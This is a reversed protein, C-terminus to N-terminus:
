VLIHVYMILKFYKLVNRSTPDMQLSCSGSCWSQCLMLIKLCMSVASLISNPLKCIDIVNALKCCTLGEDEIIDLLIMHQVEESM